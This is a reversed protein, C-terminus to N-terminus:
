DLKEKLEDVEAKLDKIAEILLPALQDYRVALFGDHRELVCEPLVEQLEQAIIGAERDNSEPLRHPNASLHWAFTYGNLRTVKDLADEIKIIDTKLQEDSSYFATLDGTVLVTTDLTVTSGSTPSIANAKIESM